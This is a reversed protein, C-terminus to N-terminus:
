ADSALRRMVAATATRWNEGSIEGRTANLIKVCLVTCLIPAPDRCEFPLTFPAVIVCVSM